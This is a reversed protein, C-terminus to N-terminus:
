KKEADPIYLNIRQPYRFLVLLTVPCLWATPIEYEEGELEVIPTLGNADYCNYHAGYGKKYREMTIVPEKGEIRCDNITVDVIAKSPHGEMQAILACLRDAGAVMMLNHHDFPYGSFEIYWDGDSEKNFTLHFIRM